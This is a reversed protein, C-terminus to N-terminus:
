NSEVDIEGPEGRHRSARWAAVMSAAARRADVQSLGDARVARELEARLERLALPKSGLAVLMALGVFICMFSPSVQFVALAGAVIFCFAALLRSQQLAQAYVGEARALTAEPNAIAADKRSAPTSQTRGFALDDPTQYRPLTTM